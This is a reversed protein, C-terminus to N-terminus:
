NRGGGAFVDSNGMRMGHAKGVKLQYAIRLVIGWFFYYPIAVFPKEFADEGIAFVWMLVFFVMLILLRNEGERWRMRKCAKYARRWVQLMLIHMWVWAVAGLLGIRALISIYSNHPERVVQGGEAYGAGFAVFDVLPFGYGLGFLFTGLDSTWRSYLNFWWGLRQSVGAASGEVGASEIGGIALFHNVLFDISVTQGLRGEIQFGVVPILLLFGFLVFVGVIGKGILERRYILFLIFMSILQLYITRSQFLFITYGILFVAIFWGFKAGVDSRKYIIVIYAAAWLLMASTNTYTFLLPAEHGAGAVLKPSWSQLMGSIPYGIAYVCAIILIIPLWQFFRELVMPRAAFAFGVLLFLSEIVHTADRLSWIGYEPVGALARSLGLVWWISFPLLFAISFLRPLLNGYHITALAFLLVLEGVPIGGGAIPPIRVQMFGYNLLLYLSITSLLLFNRFTILSM